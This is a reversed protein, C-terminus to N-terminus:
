EVTRDYGALSRLVAADRAYVHRLRALDADTGRCARELRDVADRTASDEGRLHDCEDRRRVFARVDEPLAAPEGIQAIVASVSAALRFGPKDQAVRDM